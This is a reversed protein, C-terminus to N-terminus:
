GAHWGAAMGKYLSIIQFFKQESLRLRQVSHMGNRAFTCPLKQCDQKPGTINYRIRGILKLLQAASALLRKGSQNSVFNSRQRSLQFRMIALLICCGPACWSTAQNLGEDSEIARWFQAICVSHITSQLEYPQTDKGQSNWHKAFSQLDSLRFRGTKRRRRVVHAGDRLECAACHM